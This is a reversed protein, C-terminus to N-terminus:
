PTSPEDTNARELLWRTESVDQELQWEDEAAAPFDAPDEATARTGSLLGVFIISATIILAVALLNVPQVRISRIRSVVEKSANAGTSNDAEDKRVRLMELTEPSPQYTGNLKEFSKLVGEPALGLERAYNRLHGRAFVPAKFEDFRDHEIHSLITRPIRTLAAAETLSLGKSERAEKLLTGPSKM